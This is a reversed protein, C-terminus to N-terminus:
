LDIDAAALAFVDARVGDEGDLRAGTPSDYCIMARLEGGAEGTLALGEAHDRGRDRGAGFPVALVKQLDRRAAMATTTQNLAGPWRYLFVPGDLDLTPGALVYLYEGDIALDRM